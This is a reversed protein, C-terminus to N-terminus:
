QDSFHRRVLRTIEHSHWHISSLKEKGYEKILSEDLYSSNEQFRYYIFECSMNYSIKMAVKFNGKRKEIMANSLDITSLISAVMIKQSDYVPSYFKAIDFSTLLIDITEYWIALKNEPYRFFKYRPGDPLHIGVDMFYIWQVVRSQKEIETLIYELANIPIM